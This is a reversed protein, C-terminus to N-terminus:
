QKRHRELTGRPSRGQIGELDMDAGYEDLLELFDMRNRNVAHHAPAFGRTGLDDIQHKILGSELAHRAVNLSDYEVATDLFSYGDSDRKTTSVGAETALTFLPVSDLMASYALLNRRNKDEFGLLVSTPLSAIKDIDGTKILSLVEEDSESLERKSEMGLGGLIDNVDLGTGESMLGIMGELTMPEGDDDTFVFGDPLEDDDDDDPEINDRINDNFVNSTFKIMNILEKEKDRDNLDIDPYEINVETEMIQGTEENFIERKDLNLTYQGYIRIFNEKNKTYRIHSFAEFGLSIMGKAMLYEGISNIVVDYGAILELLEENPELGDSEIKWITGSWDCLGADISKAMISPAGAPARRRIRLRNEQHDVMKIGVANFHLEEILYEDQGYSAGFVIKGHQLCNRISNDDILWSEFFSELGPNNLALIDPLGNKEQYEQLRSETKFVKVRDDQAFKNLTYGSDSISTNGYTILHIEWEADWGLLRNILAYQRGGMACEVFDCGAIYVKIPDSQEKLHGCYLEIQKALLVIPSLVETQASVPLHTSFIAKPRNLQSVLHNLKRENLISM